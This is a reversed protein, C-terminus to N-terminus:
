EFSSPHTNKGLVESIFHHYIGSSGILDARRDSLVESKASRVNKSFEDFRLVTLVFCGSHDVTKLIHLSSVVILSIQLRLFARVFGRYLLTKSHAFFPEPTNEPLQSPRRVSYILIYLSM